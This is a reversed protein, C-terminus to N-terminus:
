IFSDGSMRRDFEHILTFDYEEQTDNNVWRIAERTIEENILSTATQFRFYKGVFKIIMKDKQVFHYAGKTYVEQYDQLAHQLQNM